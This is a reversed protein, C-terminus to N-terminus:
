RLLPCCRVPCSRQPSPYCSHCTSLLPNCVTREKEDQDFYNYFPNQFDNPDLPDYDDRLFFEFKKLQFRFGAKDENHILLAVLHRDSYHIDSAVATSMYSDFFSVSNVLSFTFSYLFIFTNLGKTSPLSPSFTCAAVTQSPLSQTHKPKSAEPPLFIQSRITPSMQHANSTSM